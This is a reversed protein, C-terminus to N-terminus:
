DPISLFPLTANTQKLKASTEGRSPKSSLQDVKGSAPPGSVIDILSEFITERERRRVIQGPEAEFENLVYENDFPLMIAGLVSTKLPFRSQCVELQSGHPQESSGSYVTLTHEVRDVALASEPSEDVQRIHTISSYVGIQWVLLAM